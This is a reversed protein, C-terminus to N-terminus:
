RGPAPFHHLRAAVTGLIAAAWFPFTALQVPPGAAALGLWLAEFAFAVFGVWLLGITRRVLGAVLVSPWFLFSWAVMVQPGNTRSAAVADTPVAAVLKMTWVVASYATLLFAIGALAFASQRAVVVNM